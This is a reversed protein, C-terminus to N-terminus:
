LDHNVKQNVKHSAQSKVNYHNSNPKEIEETVVIKDNENIYYYMTTTLSSKIVM